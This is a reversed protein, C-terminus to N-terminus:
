LPLFCFWGPGIENLAALRIHAPSLQRLRDPANIGPESSFKRDQARSGRPANLQRVKLKTSEGSESMWEARGARGSAAGKRMIM